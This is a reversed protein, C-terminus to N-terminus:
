LDSTIVPAEATIVLSNFQKVPFPRDRDAVRELENPHLDKLLPVRGLFRKREMCLVM